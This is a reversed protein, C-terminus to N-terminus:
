LGSPHPPEDERMWGVFLQPFLAPNKLDMVVVVFVCMTNLPALRRIGSVKECGPIWEHFHHSIPNNHTQTGRTIGTQDKFTQEALSVQQGVKNMRM